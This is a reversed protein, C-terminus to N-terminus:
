FAHSFKFIVNALVDNILPDFPLYNFSVVLVGVIKRIELLLQCVFTKFKNFFLGGSTVAMTEM